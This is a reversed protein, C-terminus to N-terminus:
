RLSLALDRRTYDAPSGDFRVRLEQWGGAVRTVEVGDVGQVARPSRVRLTYTRGGRGEVSLRLQSGGARARLLRVAESRAGPLAPPAEAEVETGEDLEFVATATAATLDFGVEVHQVDGRRVPTATLTRGGLTVRRVRADLPLAPALTVHLPWIGPSGETRRTVRITLRGSGRELTLDYLGRGAVVREVAVQPWSAPLQPAFTLRRGADGIDLGLMGRLMPTVLMAESWIQHHSSRGFATNRDGSLLETISGLAGDWTLHATSMVGQFGVHPRGHRYAAMSAWGTFLPWVSGYHYSLPDYLASRDSLIRHGWDTAMAAGGLRDIQRDARAPDLTRWWLPVSPLVTDEDVLAVQALADLRAQRRELDPGPEARKPAPLPRQTAFAYFGRDELWYARETAERTAGAGARAEAALADEGLATAMEAFGRQAEIWLGQQYVEEHPPYLAGGEVWGHGFTTNEVLGNGDLDTAKTFRYARLISPWSARLYDLDGSSQFLDAHAIVFLPTADASAWAYPYGDFWPVLTASQSIEHPVKGDERQYKALFDLARRTTDLDGSATTAFTTWLADRGFYWAYGPRESDGSTRFGAVLGTGVLPNTALGKDIGVKAWAFAQNLRDDPGIVTTTETHLRRYHEVTKRYEVDLSGAVREYAARAGAAGTVSGAIVIPILDGARRGSADIVFRFPVDRPEEQYPQIAADQAGPAGIVAAFRGSEEGVTYTHTAAQWSVNATQSGAPWMPRLRPRFTAAIRLPLTADVDLLMVLAPEDLPAFLTQSVTFAAHTYTFTTAEPRVSIRVAIERAPIELPYGEIAFALNFDDVIKLPYVWAELGQHEYGFFASRRGAVSIFAGPQTPRSIELGTSPREFRVAPAPPRDDSAVHGGLPVLLSVFPILGAASRGPCRPHALRSRPV